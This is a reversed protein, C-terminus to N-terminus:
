NYKYVHASCKVIIPFLRTTNESRASCKFIM